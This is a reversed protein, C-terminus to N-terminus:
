TLTGRRKLEAEYNRLTTTKIIAIVGSIICFAASCVLYIVCRVFQDDQMVVEEIGDNVATQQRLEMPWIFIRAIQLVGVVSILYGHSINYSKVGESCLFAVLMFVLNYLVSIGMMWVYYSSGVPRHIDSSYLCVFYLVDFVIALYILSASLKNKTYRLRDKKILADNNLTM